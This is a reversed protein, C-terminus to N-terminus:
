TNESKGKFIFLFENGFLHRVEIEYTCALNDGYNSPYNPSTIEGTIETFRQSCAPAITPGGNQCLDGSYGTPCVCDCDTDHYGGNLCEDEASCDEM